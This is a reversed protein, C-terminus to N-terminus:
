WGIGLWEEARHLDRFVEITQGEAEAQSAYKRAMGFNADTATVFARRTGPTFFHDVSTENILDTGVRSETIARMDALQRYGPDFAPDTRLRRNHDRVEDETVVGWLRSIVLQQKPDIAYSFPL